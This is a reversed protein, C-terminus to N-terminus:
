LGEKNLLSLGTKRLNEPVKNIECFEKFLEDSSVIDSDSMQNNEGLRKRTKTKELEIGCLKVQLEWCNHEIEHKYKEWDVFKSRPIRLKVKVMDGKKIHKYKTDFIDYPDSLHVVHKSLCPFHLEEIDAGDVVLVRPNFNDGFKIRYPSGVYTVPGVKQPVHIDGSFIKANVGKFMSTNVGELTYGNSSVAGNFTQHAFIYDLDNFNIDKWEEKPNRSHPLCLFKDDGFVGFDPEWFYDLDAFENLFRFFPTNPDICDHNGRLLVVYCKNSLSFINDFLMNVLKASHKDKQDTLDGLIFVSDIKKKEVQNEIWPFISWRYSDDDRDTLHLDSTILFRM